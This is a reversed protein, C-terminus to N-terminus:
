FPVGQGNEREWQWNKFWRYPIRIIKKIREVTLSWALDPQFMWFLVLAYRWATEADIKEHEIKETFVNTPPNILLPLKWSQVPMHFTRGGILYRALWITRQEFIGTENCRRCPQNKLRNCLDCPGFYDCGRCPDYKGTGGCGFCKKILIQKDYGDFTGYKQLLRDKFAYFTSKRLPPYHYTIRSMGANAKQLMFAILPWFLSMGIGKEKCTKLSTKM